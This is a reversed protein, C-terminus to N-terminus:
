RLSIMRYLGETAQNASRYAMTFSVGSKVSCTVFWRNWRYEIRMTM